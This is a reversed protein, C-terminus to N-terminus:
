RRKILHYFKKISEQPTSIEMQLANCLKANSMGMHKSRKAKFHAIDSTAEHIVGSDIQFFEKLKIGFDYKTICGTGCAHYLGCLNKQCSIYILEALENALIPSFNIDTFLNLTKGEILSYYIWEGFSQKEQINIGYINTRFVLNQPYKLVSIEGALKTQGYVNIPNEIDTETYLKSDRGDFVADTSIYVMKIKHNNCIDALQKTVVTNLREAEEPNRECEEVNILAATHILVDPKLKVINEEIKDIDYLSIMQYPLNLNKIDIIDVGVIQAKDKLESYIGYGLMGALGTIYIKSKELLIKEM